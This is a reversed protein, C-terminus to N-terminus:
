SEANEVAEFYQNYGTHVSKYYFINQDSDYDEIKFDGSIRLFSIGLKKSIDFLSEENKVKQM